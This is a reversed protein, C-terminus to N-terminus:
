SLGTCKGSLPGMKNQTPQSPIWAIVKSVFLGEGALDNEGGSVLSVQGMSMLGHMSSISGHTRAPSSSLTWSLTRQGKSVERVTSPFETVTGEPSALWSGFLPRETNWFVSLLQKVESMNNWRELGWNQLRFISIPIPSLQISSIYMNRLRRDLTLSYGIVSATTVRPEVVASLLLAARM